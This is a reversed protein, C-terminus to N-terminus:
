VNEPTVVNLIDGPKVVGGRVVRAFIGEKPMICKGVQRSVTCGAHCHKGIQTIELLVGHGVGLVTGVPLAALHIGETTLNEAFSGPGVELGPMKMKDISEMALLSVQRRTHGGAHADDVLGHNERLCASEVTDKRTGKENSACVALIRGM